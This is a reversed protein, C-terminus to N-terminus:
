TPVFGNAVQRTERPKPEWGLADLAPRLTQRVWREFAPRQGDDVLRDSIFNIQGTPMAANLQASVTASLSLFDAISTENLRVLAWVDELLSTQEVPTLRTTRVAEGLAKLGDAGYSTRYYGRGDVNAFVWSSCGDLKVSTSRGSLVVCAAPDVTANGRRAQLLGPNGVDDVGARCELDTEARSVTTHRRGLM